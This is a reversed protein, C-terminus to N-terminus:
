LQPDESILENINLYRKLLYKINKLLLYTAFNEM